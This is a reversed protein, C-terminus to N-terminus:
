NIPEKYLFSGWSQIDREPLGSHYFLEKFIDVIKELAGEDTTRIRTEFNDKTGNATFNLSGMYAIEDDIIYIKSHIYMNKYMNFNQPSVYVKFPFLQSYEYNYIRKSKIKEKFHSRILFILLIPILGYILKMDWYFFASLSLICILGINAFLLYKVIDLWKNRIREAEKDIIRTQRILKYINKEYSSDYYDEINDTTILHVDIGRTYLYILEKILFPSLFPSVIKVSRKANTIDDLLKKGAGQGIYIDCNAGNFFTRM